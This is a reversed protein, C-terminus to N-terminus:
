PTAESLTDTKMADRITRLGSRIRTKITGLPTDTIEAIDSHSCGFEISLRLALQTDPDLQAFADFAQESLEDSELRASLPASTADAKLVALDPRRKSRRWRDILSRRALVSVFTAEAGRAPDFRNAKRWLLVFIDQVAEEADVDSGTFRRALSWVLDGYLDIVERVASTDGDAIRELVRKEDQFSM